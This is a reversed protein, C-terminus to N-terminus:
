IFYLKCGRWNLAEVRLSVVDDVCVCVCFLHFGYTHLQKPVVEFGGKVESFAFQSHQSELCIQCMGM